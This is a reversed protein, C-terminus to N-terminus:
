SLRPGLSRDASTFSIDPGWPLTVYVGVGGNGSARQPEGREHDGWFRAKSSLLLRLVM